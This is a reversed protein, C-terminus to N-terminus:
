WVQYPMGDDEYAILLLVLELSACALMNYLAILLCVTVNIVDILKFIDVIPPVGPSM